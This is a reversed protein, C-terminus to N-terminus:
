LDELIRYQGSFHRLLYRGTCDTAEGETTRLVRCRLLPRRKRIKKISAKVRLTEFRNDDKLIGDQFGLWTKGIIDTSSDISRCVSELM